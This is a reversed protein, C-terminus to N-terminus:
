APQRRTQRPAPRLMPRADPGEVRLVGPVYDAGWKHVTHKNATGNWERWFRGDNMRSNIDGPMAIVPEVQCVLITLTHGAIGSRYRDDLLEQLGKRVWENTVNAKDIEDICLVPIDRYLAANASEGHMDDFWGQELRRAHYFRAPINQRICGVVIAQATLTKATGYSGWLTLWGAPHACIDDVLWRLLVSMDNRGQISAATTRLEQANLGSRAGLGADCRTCRLAKGFGPAGPHLDPVYYGTGACTPCSPM